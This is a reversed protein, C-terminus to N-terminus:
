NLFFILGLIINRLRELFPINSPADFKLYTNFINDADAKASQLNNYSFSTKFGNM